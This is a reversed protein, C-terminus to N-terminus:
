RDMGENEAEDTWREMHEIASYIARDYELATLQFSRGDERYVEIEITGPWGVEPEPLEVNVIEIIVGFEGEDDRFIEMGFCNADEATKAPNPSLLHTM